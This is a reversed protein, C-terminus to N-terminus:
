FSYGIRGQANIPAAPFVGGSYAYAYYMRNFLNGVDVGFRLTGPGLKFSQFASFSAVMYFPVVRDERGSNDWQQPGVFKFNLRIDGGKWPFFSAGAAGVFGPSLLIKNGGQVRNTSFAANAEVKMFKWPMYSASLEVGRRYARSVNTKIPYGANDLEATEILMDFYEMDYLVVGAAWNSREMSWIAELDLLTEPKVKDSYQIDARAPERHGLAASFSAKHGPSIMWSVGARPNFFNWRGPFNLVTGYEDLGQMDHAISRFHLDAYLVWSQLRYEGRAWLDLERKKADNRYNETDPEISRGYHLGSYHSLYVGGSVKLDSKLYQLESRLVWLGNDLYDRSGEWENPPYEYYGFGKTFNLTTNIDLNDTLERAWNLQFHNQYYNDTAGAAPNFRRDTPYIDWPCGEWTIGSRQDGHLFTFRLIDKKGRWGAVAFISQVDATGSKIYGDTHRRSYAARGFFGHKSMGTRASVTGTFTMFSGGSLDIEAGPEYSIGLSSMNLSAGFAGAGSASTGLGRQVQVNGLVDNLGPINVWFVEQSEADNLTIGNLTVNTQTGGVGRIRLTSYCLGTGGESTSVTNPLLGLTMPLSGAPTASKLESSSINIKVVPTTEGAKSASVVLSDLTDPAQGQCLLSAALIFKIM